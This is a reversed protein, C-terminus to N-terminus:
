GMSVHNLLPNHQGTTQRDTQRDTQRRDLSFNSIERNLHNRFGVTVNSCVFVFRCRHVQYCGFHKSEKCKLSKRNFM